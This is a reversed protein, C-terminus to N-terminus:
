GRLSEPELLVQRKQLRYAKIIIKGIQNIFTIILNEVLGTVQQM